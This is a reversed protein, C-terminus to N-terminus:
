GHTIEEDCRTRGSVGATHMVLCYETHMALGELHELMAQEIKSSAHSHAKHLQKALLNAQAIASAVEPRHWTNCEEQM